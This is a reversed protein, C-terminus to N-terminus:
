VTKLFHLQPTFAVYALSPAYARVLRPNWMLSVTFLLAVCAFILGYNLNTAWWSLNASVSNKM